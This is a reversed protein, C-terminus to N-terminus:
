LLRLGMVVTAIVTILGASGALILLANARAEDAHRKAGEEQVAQQRSVQKVVYTERRIRESRADHGEKHWRIPEPDNNFVLVQGSANSLAPKPTKANLLEAVSNFAIPKRSQFVDDRSLMVVRNPKDSKAYKDHVETKFRDWTGDDNLNIVKLKTM